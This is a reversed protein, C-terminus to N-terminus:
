TDKSPHCIQGPEICCSPDRHHPLATGMFVADGTTEKRGCSFFEDADEM